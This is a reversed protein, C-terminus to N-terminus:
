CFTLLKPSQASQENSAGVAQSCCLARTETENSEDGRIMFDFYRKNRRPRTKPTLVIVRATLSGKLSFVTGDGFTEEVGAVLSM